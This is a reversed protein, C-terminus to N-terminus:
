DEKRREKKKKRRGVEKEGNKGVEKIREAKKREGGTEERCFQQMSLETAPFRRKM